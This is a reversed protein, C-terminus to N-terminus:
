FFFIYIYLGEQPQYPKRRMACRKLQIAFFLAELEGKEKYKPPKDNKRYENFELLQSQMERLSNPFNRNNLWKITNQIWILLESALQEYENQLADQEAM